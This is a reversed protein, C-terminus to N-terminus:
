IDILKEAMYYQRAKADLNQELRDFKKVKREEDLEPM